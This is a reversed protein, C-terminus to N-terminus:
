TSDGVAGIEHYPNAVDIALRCLVQLIGRCTMLVRLLGRCRMLVQLIGRCRM